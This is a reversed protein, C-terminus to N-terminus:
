LDPSPSLCGPRGKQTPLWTLRQLGTMAREEDTVHIAPRQHPDGALDVQGVHMSELVCECHNGLREDDFATAEVEEVRGRQPHERRVSFLVVPHNEAVRATGTRNTCRALKSCRNM